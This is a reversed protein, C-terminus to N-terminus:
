TARVQVGTTATLRAAFAPGLILWPHGAHARVDGEHVWGSVEVLARLCVLARHWQLEASSARAGSYREYSRIFRRAMRRGVFRVVPRLPGPVILPPEALLLSTFAVDHARPGVLASSWDLLTVQDGDILVNFPHLDGHCIVDPAGLPPHDILWAAADTLDARGYRTASARQAALMSGVSAGVYGADALQRRVPEPDLSHLKAMTDALTDPIRRFLSTAHSLTAIGGLGSLPPRGAAKNMIMFARGLGAEPGGSARVAPTPFGAAAVTTQVVTEKRAVIPDPMLRAVLEGAWGSPPRALSFALLEAAFGGTLREPPRAYELTPSGTLVRLVVLLQAARTDGEL